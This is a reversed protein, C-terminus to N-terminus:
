SFNSIIVAILFFFPAIFILYIWSSDALEMKAKEVWEGREKRSLARWEKLLDKSRKEGLAQDKLWLRM